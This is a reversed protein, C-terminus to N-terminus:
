HRYFFESTNILAWAIEQTSYSRATDKEEQSPFRSLISLFLRDVLDKSSGDSSDALSKLMSSQSIKQRIHTSNLMHLRQGPTTRSNRESDMGSDRPPRGFMELFSSTISGDPLTVTRNNEPVWTYPEPIASSYSETSGTIQCIADILVEAELQRLAYHGFNAASEASKGNPICSLQYTKSNLILRLIHKQDYKASALEQALYDLLEPNQPPNDPRFDDPEHVIGRGMLAHWIRNVIPRVFHPNKPDILWDAFVERPDRDASLEVWKKDTGDPLLGRITAPGAPKAEATKAVTADAGGTKPAATKPSAPKTDASKAEAPKAATANAAFQKAKSPDFLVIEEKWESTGKYAIMSFFASMGELREKPWNDTREGMFTLAVVKATPQPKKSQLARYFNVQGVRFNSGCATLMERVFQDYPINAKFAARVWRYYAQAANPWLNIPFEAKIRLIDSWRMAWYDAYERRQLLADILVQRKNPSKDSLFAQAEKETPLTGIVDLFVRRLFVGDTCLNAPKIGLTKLKAFVLEDIKNAPAVQVDSKYLAIDGFTMSSSGESFSADAFSRFGKKTEDEKETAATEKPTDAVTKPRVPAQKAAKPKAVSEGEPNSQVFMWGAVGLGGLILVTLVSILPGVISKKKKRVLPRAIAPGLSVVPAPAEPAAAVPVSREAAERSSAVAVAQQSSAAPQPQLGRVQSALYWTKSTELRVKTDSKVVGAASAARLEELSVPGVQKGGVVYFWSQAM